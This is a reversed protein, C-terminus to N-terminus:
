EADFEEWIEKLRELLIDQNNTVIRNANGWWHDIEEGTIEKVEPNNTFNVEGILNVFETFRRFLPINNKLLEEAIERDAELGSNLLKYIKRLTM